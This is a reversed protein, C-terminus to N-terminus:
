EGEEATVLREGVQELRYPDAEVRKVWVSNAAGNDDDTM